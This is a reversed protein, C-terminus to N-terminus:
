SKKKALDDIAGRVKDVIKKQSAPESVKDAAKDADKLLAMAKKTDGNATTAMAVALLAYARSESREISKAAAEAEELLKTAEAKKGTRAQVNAAAALAEAKARPEKLTKAAELLKAVVDSASDALGSRTYGLAVAALADARFREEVGDAVETAKKLTEKAAQSDAAGKSKDGYVAGADALLQTKRVQDEIGEARGIALSLVERAQKREGLEALIAGSEVLRQAFVNADGGDGKLRELAKLTTEKAADRQNQGIQLRAVKLFAAAQRDPTPEKEAKELRQAITLGTKKKGCGGTAPLAAVAVLAITALRVWGSQFM